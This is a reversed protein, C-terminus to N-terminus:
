SLLKHPQLAPSLANYSGTLFAAPPAVLVLVLVLMLVLVLWM